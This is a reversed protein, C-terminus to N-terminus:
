QCQLKSVDSILNPSLMLIVGYILNAGHMLKLGTSAVYIADAPTSNCVQFILTSNRVRMQKFVLLFFNLRIVGCSLTEHPTM